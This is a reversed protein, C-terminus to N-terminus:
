AGNWLSKIKEVISGADIGFKKRLGATNNVAHIFEAPIGIKILHFSRAREVALNAMISGLGCSEYHEEVVIVTTIGNLLTELADIDLPQITPLSILLPTIGADNLCNWASLTEEIM